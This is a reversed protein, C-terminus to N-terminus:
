KTKKDKVRRDWRRSPNKKVHIDIGKTTEGSYVVAKKVSKGAGKPSVYYSGDEDVRVIYKGDRGTRKDSIFVTERMKPDSSAHVLVGEVPAGNKLFVRGEIATKGKPLWENKFPVAGPIIGIDTPGEETVVYTQLESGDWAPWTPDGAEVPPGPKEGTMKKTAMVYYKGAPLRQSFSGDNGTRTVHDCVRWYDGSFPPPGSNVNYICVRAGSFADGGETLLTGKMVGYSRVQASAVNLMALLCIVSLTIFIRNKM